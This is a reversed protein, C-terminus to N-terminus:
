IYSVLEQEEFCQIAFVVFKIELKRLCDRLFSSLTIISCVKTVIVGPFIDFTRWFSNIALEPILPAELLTKRLTLFHYLM